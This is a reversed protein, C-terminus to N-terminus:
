IILKMFKKNNQLTFRLENKEANNLGRGKDKVINNIARQYLIGAKVGNLQARQDVNLGDKGFSAEAGAIRKEKKVGEYIEPRFKRTVRERVKSYENSDTGIGYLPYNKFNFNINPYTKRLFNRIEKSPELVQVAISGPKGAYGGPETVLGRRPTVLAFRDRVFTQLKFKDGVTQRPQASELENTIPNIVYTTM